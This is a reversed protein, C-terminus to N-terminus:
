RDKLWKCESRLMGYVCADQGMVAKRIVGELKFGLGEDFRRARKNARPTITTMRGCGLQVFPYQFLRRLTHPMAWRPHDFAASMEIDGDQPRYSHFVVGGLLNRDKDVVGLASCPGFQRDEMHRIRGRVFESVFGDAFYLVNGIIVPERNM